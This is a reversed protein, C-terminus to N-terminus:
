EIACLSTDPTRSKARTCVDTWFPTIRDGAGDIAARLDAPRTKLWSPAYPAGCFRADALKERCARALMVGFRRTASVLESYADGEPGEVPQAMPSAPDLVHLAAESQDVMVGLRRADITLETDSQALAPAAALLTALILGARVSM